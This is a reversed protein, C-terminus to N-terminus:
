NKSINYLFVTAIFAATHKSRERAQALRKNKIKYCICDLQHKLSIVM